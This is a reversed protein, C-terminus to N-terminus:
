DVIQIEKESRDLFERLFTRQATSLTATSQWDDISYKDVNNNHIDEIYLIVLLTREDNSVVSGLAKMMYINSLTYEIDNLYTGMEFLPVSNSVFVKRQYNNNKIVLSTSELTGKIKSM